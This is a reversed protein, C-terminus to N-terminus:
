EISINKYIQSNHINLLNIIKHQEQKINVLENKILNIDDMFKNLNVIYKDLNVIKEIEDIKKVIHNDINEIIKDLPIFKTLIDNTMQSQKTLNNISDSLNSISILETSEPKITDNPIKVCSIKDDDIIIVSM